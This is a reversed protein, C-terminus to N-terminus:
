EAGVEEVEGRGGGVRRRRRSNLETSGEKRREVSHGDALNPPASCTQSPSLEYM